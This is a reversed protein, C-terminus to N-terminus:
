SDFFEEVESTPLFKPPLDKRYLYEMKRRLIPLSLTALLVKFGISLQITFDMFQLDYILVCLSKHKHSPCYSHLRM